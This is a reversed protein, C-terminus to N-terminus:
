KLRPWHQATSGNRTSKATTFILIYNNESPSRRNYIFKRAGPLPHGAGKGNGKGKSKGGGKGKSKDKKEVARIAARGMPNVM